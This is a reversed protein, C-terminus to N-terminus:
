KPDTMRDLITWVPGEVAPSWFEGVLRRLLEREDHTLGPNDPSKELKGAIQWEKYKLEGNDSKEAPCVPPGFCMLAAHYMVMAPTLCDYAGCPGKDDARKAGYPDPVKQGEVTIPTTLDNTTPAGALAASSLLLSLATVIFKM